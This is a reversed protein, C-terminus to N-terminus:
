YKFNILEMLKIKVSNQTTITLYNLTSSLDTIVQNQSNVFTLNGNNEFQYLSQNDSAFIQNNFAAINSFSNLFYHTWNNSDLLFPDNVAATYIGNETAAYIINNAIEVETVYVESSADGIFFTDVFNITELHFTVIGFPVSLFLLSGNACIDNIRKSGTIDFNLIDPKITIARNEDIVEVLGNEYGIVVRNLSKDYYFASTTEGSLGNVSSIKESEETSKDYIFLANDTLAYIHTDTHTFDVVNNYSYMDEWKQSFDSQAKIFIVSLFILTVTLNNRMTKHNLAFDGM